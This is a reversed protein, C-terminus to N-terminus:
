AGQVFALFASVRTYVAGQGQLGCRVWAFGRPRKGGVTSAVGVLRPGSPSFGVLPGGSDGQCPSRRISRRKGGARAAGWREGVTCFSTAPPLKYRACLGPRSYQLAARLLGLKPKKRADVQGHGFGVAFAPAGLATMAADLAPDALEIPPAGVPEALTLVAIDNVLGGNRMRRYEPHVEVSSVAVEQGGALASASGARVRMGSPAVCHAATVVRVPSVVSGTCLTRQTLVSVVFPVQAVGIRSGGVVSKGAVPQNALAGSEGGALLLAAIAVLGIRKVGWSDAALRSFRLM